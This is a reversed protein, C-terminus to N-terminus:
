IVLEERLVDSYQAPPYERVGQGAMAVLKRPKTAKQRKPAPLDLFCFSVGSIPREIGPGSCEKMQCPTTM